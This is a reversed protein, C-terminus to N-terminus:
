MERTKIPSTADIRGTEKTILRTAANEDASDGASTRNREGRDEVGECDGVPHSRGYRHGARRGGSVYKTWIRWFYARVFFACTKVIFEGYAIKSEEEGYRAPIPVNMVPVDYVNLRVLIDNEFAYRPYVRDLDLLSLARATVATYGNQPDVVHWYGSAIKNMLTLVVNGFYRWSSMGARLDQRFLRNGKTYEARGEVIPDLLRPLYEPDMQGDGAMVVAIDIGEKLAMKYGAIIAAGVGGNVERSIVVIRHDRQAEEQMITLTTDTSADDVACIMDVYTPVSRLTGRILRSENFAPVVVAVSM